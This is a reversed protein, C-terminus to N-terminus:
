VHEMDHFFANIVPQQMHECKFDLASWTIYHQSGKIQEEWAYPWGTCCPAPTSAALLNANEFKM